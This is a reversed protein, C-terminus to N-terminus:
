APVEVDTADDGFQDVLPEGDPPAECSRRFHILVGNIVYRCRAKRNRLEERAEELIVARGYHSQQFDAMGSMVDEAERIPRPLETQKLKCWGDDCTCIPEERDSRDAERQIYDLLFQEQAERDGLVIELDAYIPRLEDNAWKRVSDDIADDKFRRLVEDTADHLSFMQEPSSVSM